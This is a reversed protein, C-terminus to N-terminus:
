QAHKCKRNGIATWNHSKTLSLMVVPLWNRVRGDKLRGWAWVGEFAEVVLSGLITKFVLNLASSLTTLATLLARLISNLRYHDKATRGWYNEGRTGFTQGAVFADWEIRDRSVSANSFACFSATLNTFASQCTGYPAARWCSRSKDRVCRRIRPSRIEMNLIAWARRSNGM